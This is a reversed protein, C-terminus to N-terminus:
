LLIACDVCNFFFFFFCLQFPFYAVNFRLNQCDNFKNKRKMLNQNVFHKKQEHLNKALAMKHYLQMILVVPFSPIYGYVKLIHKNPPSIPHISFKPSFIPFLVKKSHTQNPLPSPFYIISNLYKKELGVM